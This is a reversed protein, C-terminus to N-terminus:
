SVPIYPIRCYVTFYMKISHSVLLPSTTAPKYLKVYTFYTFYTQPLTCYGATRLVTCRFTISFVIVTNKRLVANHTATCYKVTCYLDNRLKTKNQTLLLLMVLNTIFINNRMCLFKTVYFLFQKGITVVYKRSDIQSLSDIQREKQM